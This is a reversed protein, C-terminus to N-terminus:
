VSILSPIKAKSEGSHCDGDNASNTAGIEITLSMGSALSSRIDDVVSIPVESIKILSRHNRQLLRFLALVQPRTKSVGSAFFYFTVGYLHLSILNLPHSV